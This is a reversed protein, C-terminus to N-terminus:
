DFVLSLTVSDCSDLVYVQMGARRMANIQMEQVKSLRRGPKKWEVLVCVSERFYIYDPVGNNGPSVFKRALWGKSKAYENGKRQTDKELPVRAARPAPRDPPRVARVGDMRRDSGGGSAPRHCQWLRAAKGSPTLNRLWQAAYEDIENYYASM